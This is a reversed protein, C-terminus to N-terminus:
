MEYNSKESFMKRDGTYIQMNLFLRRPVKKYPQVAKWELSTSFLMELKCKKRRTPQQSQEQDKAMLVFLCFGAKSCVQEIMEKANVWLLSIGLDFIYLIHM